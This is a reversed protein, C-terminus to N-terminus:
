PEEPPIEDDPFPPADDGAKGYVAESFAGGKPGYVKPPTDPKMVLTGDWAGTPLADLCLNFGQGDRLPFATGVRAWRTKGSRDERKVLINQQGKIM